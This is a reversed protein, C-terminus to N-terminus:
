PLRSLGLAGMIAVQKPSLSEAKIGFGFPSAYTRMKLTRKTELTSTLVGGFTKGNVRRVGYRMRAETTETWEKHRMLYCYDCILSDAVGPSIAKMFQGLDTFYDILWTWPMINYLVDPTLRGGMIRRLMSKKWEVDRPGPPLFYRFRGEAWTRDTTRRETRVHSEPGYDYCQTVFTPHHPTGDLSSLYSKSYRKVGSDGAEDTLTTSRRVPRGADRILQTLRKQKGQQAECFNQIDKYLPLWGFEIALYWKGSWSLATYRRGHRHRAARDLEGRMVKVYDRFMNPLDKLEYLSTALSFDPLDPRLRNWAEAGRNKLASYRENAYDDTDWNSPAVPDGLLHAKAYVGGTYWHEGQGWIESAESPTRTTTIKRMLWPGGSRYEGRIRRHSINILQKGSAVEPVYYETRVPKDTEISYWQGLPENKNVNRPFTM